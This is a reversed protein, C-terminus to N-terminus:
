WVSAHRNNETASETDWKRSVGGTLHHTVRHQGSKGGAISRFVSCAIARNVTSVFKVLFDFPKINFIAM